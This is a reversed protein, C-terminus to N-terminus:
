ATDGHLRLLARRLRGGNRRAVTRLALLGTGVLLLSSPEPLVTLNGSINTFNGVAAGIIFAGNGDDALGLTVTGTGAFSLSAMLPGKVGGGLDRFAMVQGLVSVPVTFIGTVLASAPVTFTGTTFDIGGMLIDTFQKGISVETYGPGPFAFPSFSLTMPVGVMGFGLIGPGDPAASFASFLGTNVGLGDTTNGQYGFGTVSVSNASAPLSVSLLLCLVVLGFTYPRVYASM